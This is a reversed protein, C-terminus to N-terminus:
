ESHPNRYQLEQQISVNQIFITIWIVMTTIFSFLLLYLLENNKWHVVNKLNKMTEKRTKWRVKSHTKKVYHLSRYDITIPDHTSTSLPRARSTSAFLLLINHNMLNSHHFELHPLFM